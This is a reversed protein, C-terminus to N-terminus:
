KSVLVGKNFQGFLSCSVYIFVYCFLAIGNKRASKAAPKQIVGSITFDICICYFCQLVSLLQCNLTVDIYKLLM